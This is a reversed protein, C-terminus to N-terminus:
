KIQKRGLHRLLLHYLLFTKDTFMDSLVSLSRSKRARSGTKM